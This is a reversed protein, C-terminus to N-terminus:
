EKLNKCIDLTAESKNLTFFHLFKFGNNILDQCQATAYDVGIKYIDDPSDKHKELLQVLGKPMEAQSLEAFKKIQSYNTIPMIGPIIPININGHLAHDIFHYFYSNEFFMQTVAFDLGANVKVKFYKMETFMDPSEPHTEPFAAGGISFHNDFNEKIFKVMDVANPFDGNKICISPDCPKDGRLAMLNSVNHERYDNVINFIEDRTHGIATLHAMVTNRGFKAIKLVINHTNERSTGGAGYTISVYAPNIEELRELHAFLSKEGEKTKPAFFEFAYGEGKALIDKIKM